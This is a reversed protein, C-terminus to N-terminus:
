MLETPEFVKPQTRKQSSQMNMRPSLYIIAQTMMDVMDDNVSRPFSSCQDVFSRTFHAFKPLYVHGSQIYPSAAAARAEKGGQPEVSIIGTVERKLTSMVAEGNAKAEILKINARPWKRSLTKLATCSEVFELKENILDLLFVDIGVRGWVGGAVYDSDKTAKFAFDWSQIIEDFRSPAEDYYKWWDRKLFNGEMETPMGQWLSTWVWGGPNRKIELLRSRSYRKEHLAQGEKRFSEDKIALAPFHLVRWGKPDDKLLRGVLDDEHWRTSIVMEGCIPMLRTAIDANYSEYRSDRITQSYAEQYGRIPDDVISLNAGIGGGVAGLGVAKYVGGATTEWEKVSQREGSLRTPWTNQFLDSRMLELSRRSSKEAITSNYSSVLIQWDPHKGLLQVPLRETVISTKGHRPPFTLILKPHQGLELQSVFIELEKFLVDYFPAPDFHFYSYSIFNSFSRRCLESQVDLLSLNLNM